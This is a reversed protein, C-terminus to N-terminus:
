DECTKLRSISRRISEWREELRTFMQAYAATQLMEDDIEGKQFEDWISELLTMAIALREAQSRKKLEVM